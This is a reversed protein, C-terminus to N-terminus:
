LHCLKQEQRPVIFGEENFFGNFFTIQVDFHEIRWGNHTAITVITRITEWKVVPVFTKTYDL